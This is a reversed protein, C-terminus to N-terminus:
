DKVCRVSCGYIKNCDLVNISCNLYDLLRAVAYSSESENTTWWYGFTGVGFFAGSDNRQGGPLGSFGIQANEAAPPSVGITRMKYAALMDGGLFDILQTWEQDSTIHWGRPALGRPDHVAYWNYLKGYKNANLGNSPETCWAPKKEKGYKIWEGASKAEPIVDGNRFRSVSLNEAMWEQSGTKVTGYRNGDRDRLANDCSSIMPLLAIFIFFPLYKIKNM